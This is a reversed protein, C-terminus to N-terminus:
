CCAAPLVAVDAANDQTDQRRQLTSTLWKGESVNAHKHLVKTRLVTMIQSSNLFALPVCERLLQTAM